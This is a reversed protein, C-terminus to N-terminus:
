IQIFPQKGLRNCSRGSVIRHLRYTKTMGCFYPSLWTSGSPVLASIPTQQSRFRASIWKVGHKRRGHRRTMFCHVKPTASADLFRTDEATDDNTSASGGDALARHHEGKAKDTDVAPAPVSTDGDNSSDASSDGDDQAGATSCKCPQVEPPLSLLQMLQLLLRGISTVWFILSRISKFNESASGTCSQLKSKFNHQAYAIRCLEEHLESDLFQQKHHQQKLTM